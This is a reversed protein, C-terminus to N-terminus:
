PSVHLLFTFSCKRGICSRPGGGFPLYAWGPRIGKTETGEKSQDLWREPRFLEADEGYIDERRHMSYASWVVTSGKAVFIPSKGDEGGGRPLVTDVLAQRNNEPAIPALRLSENIVARLYRMSALQDPSPPTGGLTDVEQRLQAWIDPRKSLEFWVNSLLAATGDRGAFLVNMLEWRIRLKSTTSSVLHQLFTHRSPVQSMDKSTDSVYDALSREIYSDIFAPNLNAVTMSVMVVSLESNKDQALM